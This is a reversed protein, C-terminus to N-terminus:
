DFADSTMPLRLRVELAEAFLASAAVAFIPRPHLDAEVMRLRRESQPARMDLHDAFTAVDIFDPLSERLCAHRTMARVIHMAATATRVAGFAVVRGFPAACGEVMEFLGTKREDTSVLFQHTVGAVEVVHRDLLRRLVAVTAMAGVVMMVAAEAAFARVAMSLRRPLVLEIMKRLGAERQLARVSWQATFAAMAACQGVFQRLRTDTAVFLVIRVTATIACALAAVGFHGPVRNREVVGERLERQDPNMCRGRALRTVGFEIEGPHRLYAAIAMSIAVIVLARESICTACAVVGVTPIPPLEIMVRLGCIWQSALMSIQFTRRTM